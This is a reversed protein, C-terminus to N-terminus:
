TPTATSIVAPRWTTPLLFCTRAGGGSQCGCQTEEYAIIKDVMTTAEALTNVPLRGINMDPMLDNGVLM